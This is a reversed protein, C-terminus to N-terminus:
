DVYEDTWQWVNGVMDMVGFPSAGHPHADVDSPPTLSPDKDPTPALATTLSDKPCGPLGVDTPYLGIATGGRFPADMTAMRPMSGSGSMLFGNAQGNRM